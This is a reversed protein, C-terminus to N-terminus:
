DSVPAVEGQQAGIAKEIKDLKRGVGVGANLVAREVQELQTGRDKADAVLAKELKELRKNLLELQTIMEERQALSNGLSSGGRDPDANAYSPAYRMAVLTFMAAILALWQQSSLRHKTAIETNTRTM